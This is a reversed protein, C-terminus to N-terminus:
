YDFRLQQLLELCLFCLRDQQGLLVINISGNCLECLDNSEARGIGRAVVVPLSAKERSEGFSLTLFFFFLAVLFVGLIDSWNKAKM